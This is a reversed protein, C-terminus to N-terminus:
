QPVVDAITASIMFGWAKGNNTDMVLRIENRGARWEVPVNLCNAAIPNTATPHCGSAQGNIFVKYPGDSGIRLFGAGAVPAMINAQIYLRGARDTKEAYRPRIDYYKAREVYDVCVFAKGEPNCGVDEIRGTGPELDSCVVNECPLGSYTTSNFVM